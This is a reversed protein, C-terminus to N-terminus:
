DLEVVEGEVRFVVQEAINTCRDGYRELDHAIWLMRTGNNVLAPDARMAELVRGVLDKLRADLEDDTAAVRRALDADDGHHARAAEALMDQCIGAMALVEAQGVPGLDATDLEGVSVAIDRAYDGMRELEAAIRMDAVIDRLDHAVPQQSAILVMCALEIRRRRENLLADHRILEGCGSASRTALCQMAGDIAAAVETFLADLDAEIEGKRVDLTHRSELMRNELERTRTAPMKGSYWRAKRSPMGELISPAHLADQQNAIGNEVEGQADIM